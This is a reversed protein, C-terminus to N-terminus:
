VRMVREFCMDYLTTADLSTGLVSATAERRTIDSCEHRSSVPLTPVSSIIMTREEISLEDRM